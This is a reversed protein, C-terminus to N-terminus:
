GCVKTFISPKLIKGITVRSGCIGEKGVVYVAVLIGVPTVQPPDIVVLTMSLYIIGQSMGNPLIFMNNDIKSNFVAYSHKFYLSFTLLLM